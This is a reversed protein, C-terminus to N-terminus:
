KLSFFICFKCDLPKSNLSSLPSSFVFTLQHIKPPLKTKTIKVNDTPENLTGKACSITNIPDTMIMKNKINLSILSNGSSNRNVITPVATIININLAMGPGPGPKVHNSISSSPNLSCNKEIRDRSADIKVNAPM